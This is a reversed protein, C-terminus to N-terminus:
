NLFSPENMQLPLFEVTKIITDYDKQLVPYGGLGFFTFEYFANETKTFLETVVFDNITWMFTLSGVNSINYNVLRAPKGGVFTQNDDIFVFGRDDTLM